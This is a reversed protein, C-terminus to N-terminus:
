DRRVWAENEDLRPVRRLNKLSAATQWGLPIAAHCPRNGSPSKNGRRFSTNEASPRRAEPLLAGELAAGTELVTASNAPGCAAHCDRHVCALGSRTPSPFKSIGSLSRSADRMRDCVRLEEPPLSGLLVSSATSAARGLRPRYLQTRRLQPPTPVARRM